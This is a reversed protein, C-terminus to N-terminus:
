PSQHINREDIRKLLGSFQENRIISDFQSSYNKVVSVGEIVMDYVLWGTERRILKYIIVMKEGNLNFHTFVASRPEKIIQKEFVVPEGSYDNLKGVYHNKLLTAYKEVFTEKEGSGIEEWRRALTLRSMERFDFRKDVIEMIMRRREARMKDSALGPDKLLRLVENVSDKVQNIPEPIGATGERNFGFLILLILGTVIVNKFCHTKEM